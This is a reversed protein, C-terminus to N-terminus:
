ANGFIFNRRNPCIKGLCLRIGDTTAEVKNGKQRKSGIVENIASRTKGDM